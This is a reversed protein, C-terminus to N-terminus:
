IWGSVGEIQAFEQTECWKRTDARQKRATTWNSWLMTTSNSPFRRWCFDSKTLNPSCWGQGSRSFFIPKRFSTELKYRFLWHTTRTSEVIAPPPTTSCRGSWRGYRRTPSTPLSRLHAQFNRNLSATRNRGKTYRSWKFVFSKKLLQFFTQAEQM